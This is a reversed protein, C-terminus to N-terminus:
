KYHHTQFPMYKFLNTFTDTTSDAVTASSYHAILHSCFGM